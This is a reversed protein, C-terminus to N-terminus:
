SAQLRARTPTPQWCYPRIRQKWESYNTHSIWDVMGLQEQLRHNRCLTSRKNVTDNVIYNYINQLSQALTAITSKFVYTAKGEEASEWIIYAAKPSKLTFLFSDHIGNVGNSNIVQEPTPVICSEEDMAECLYRMSTTRFFDPLHNRYYQKTYQAFKHIVLGSDDPSSISPLKGTNSLFRIYYLVVERNLITSVTRQQIKVQLPPAQRFTYHAKVLNLYQRAEPFYFRNLFSGRHRILLGGDCFQIDKWEVTILQELGSLPAPALVPLRLRTTLKAPQKASKPQIIKVKEAVKEAVTAPKKESKVIPQRSQKNAKETELQRKTHQMVLGNVENRESEVRQHVTRIAQLAKEAKQQKQLLGTDLWKKLQKEIAQKKQQAHQYENSLSLLDLKSGPTLQQRITDLNKEIDALQLDLQPGEPNKSVEARYRAVVQNQEMLQRRLRQLQLDLENRRRLLEEYTPVTATDFQCAVGQEVYQILQLYASQPFPLQRHRTIPYGGSKLWHALQKESCGKAKAVSRLCFIRFTQNDLTSM